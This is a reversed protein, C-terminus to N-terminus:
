CPDAFGATQAYGGVIAALEEPAIVDELRAFGNPAREAVVDMVREPGSNRNSRVIEATMPLREAEYAKLAAEPTSEALLRALCRADLIAQSAGNSGVPYMPHAADGLLTIRGQSWWPLPDRDCQPYEFYQPTARIFAEVDLFPLRLRTAFQLVDELRGPRSWDERRPPPLEGTAVKGHMVWNTLRMAPTSGEAIPYIVLKAILDATMIMVDGGEFAPWEVAGRWMQVGQWRIGGDDPHLQRRLVSHIGDAGVLVAGRVETVSGDTLAFRATVGGADQTAGLLRHGNRLAGDPLRAKVARWLISHLRGRHISVQPMDHGAWRGRQGAWITQGLHSLYRLERTRIGVRDLEPLLGLSALGRVGHPLVNIGVGLEKMEAAAEFVLCPIGFQHLSLALTLGGVGGGEILVHTTPDAARPLPVPAPTAAQEGRATAQDAETRRGGAPPEPSIFTMARRRLATIFEAPSKAANWRGSQSRANAIRKRILGDVAFPGAGGLVLAALCALYLVDTEYGPQGFQAGAATVALLKISSFGYPLHVTFIAVLLIVAMPISAATVFAGLTVALGGLIETLVTIWATFHPGPVGIAHLITAFAEPGRALKAFGHQMFGYGVILRLPIPAWRAAADWRGMLLIAIEITSPNM